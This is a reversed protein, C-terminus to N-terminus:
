PALRRSKESRAPELFTRAKHLAAFVGFLGSFEFFPSSVFDSLWFLSIFCAFRCGPSASLFASSEGSRAGLVHRPDDFCWFCWLFSFFLESFFFVLSPYVCMLYFRYFAAPSLRLLQNTSILSNPFSLVPPQPPLVLLHTVIQWFVDSAVFVDSQTNPKATNSLLQREVTLM